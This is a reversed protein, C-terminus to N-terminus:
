SARRRAGDAQEARLKRTTWRRGAGQQLPAAYDGSDYSLGTATAIRFSTTARRFEQPPTEAPDMKLEAALMDVMREIGHTAEPRGAGRYADTPVCNTFVGVIDACINKFRYLGPMM